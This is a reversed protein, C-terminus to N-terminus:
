KVEICHGDKNKRIIILIIIMTRKFRNGVLCLKIIAGLVMRYIIQIYITLKNIRHWDFKFSFISTLNTEIINKRKKILLKNHNQFNNRKFKIVKKIELIVEFNIKFM